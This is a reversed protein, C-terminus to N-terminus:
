SQKRNKTDVETKYILEHTDSKPEVHLHYWTVQWERGSKSWKTKIIQLDMWVAAFPM